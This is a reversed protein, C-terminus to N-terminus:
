DSVKPVKSSTASYGVATTEGYRACGSPTARRQLPSAQEALQHAIDYAPGSQDAAILLVACLLGWTSTQYASRSHRPHGPRALDAHQNWASLLARRDHDGSRQQFVKEIGHEDM